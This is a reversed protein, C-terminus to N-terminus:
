EGESEIRNLNEVAAITMDWSIDKAYDYEEQYNQWLNRMTSNIKIEAIISEANVIHELSHRTESTRGVAIRFIDDNYSQTKTLIYVDYFDRMRTNEVSRSIITEYKEALITETNYALIEIREETFMLKHSFEVPRPTIADGTSVDLKFPIKTNELNAALSVRLGGYESEERIQIISKIDFTINDDADIAIVDELMAKLSDETIVYGSITGDLDM